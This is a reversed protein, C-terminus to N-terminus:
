RDPTVKSTVPTFASTCIMQALASCHGHCACQVTQLVSSHDRGGGGGPPGTRTNTSLCAASLPSSNNFRWLILPVSGGLLPVVWTGVSHLVVLTYVIEIYVCM